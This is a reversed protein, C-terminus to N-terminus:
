EIRQVRRIDAERRPRAIVLADFLDGRLLGHQELAVVIEFMVAEDSLGAPPLSRVIAQGDAGLALHLFRRLEEARFLSLLLQQFEILNVPAKEVHLAHKERRTFLAIVLTVTILAAMVMAAVITFLWFVLDSESSSM